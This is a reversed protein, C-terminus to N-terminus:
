ARKHNKKFAVYIELLRVTICKLGNLSCQAYPKFIRVKSEFDKSYM